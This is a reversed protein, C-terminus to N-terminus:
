AVIFAWQRSMRLLMVVIARISGAIGTRVAVIARIAIVARIFAGQPRSRIEVAMVGLVVV